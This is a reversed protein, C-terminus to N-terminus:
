KNMEGLVTGVCTNVELKPPESQLENRLIEICKQTVEQVTPNASLPNPDNITYNFARVCGDIMFQTPEMQLLDKIKESCKQTIEDATLMPTEYSASSNSLIDDGTQASATCILTIYLAAVGLTVWFLL